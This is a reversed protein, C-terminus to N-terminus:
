SGFFIQFQTSSKNGSSDICPTVLEFFRHNCDCCYKIRNLENLVDRTTIGGSKKKIDIYDTMKPEQIYCYCDHVNKIIIHDLESVTDDLEDLSVAIDFGVDPFLSDLIAHERVYNEYEDDESM